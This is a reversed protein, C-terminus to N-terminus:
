GEVPKKTPTVIAIPIPHTMITITRAFLTIGNTYAQAAKNCSKKNQLIHANGRDTKSVTETNQTTKLTAPSM